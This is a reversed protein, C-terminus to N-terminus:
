PGKEYVNLREKLLHAPESDSFKYPVIYSVMVKLKITYIAQLHLTNQIYEHFM